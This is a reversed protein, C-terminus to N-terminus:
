NEDGLYGLARLQAETDPDLPRTSPPEVPAVVRLPKARARPGVPQGVPLVPHRAMELTLADLLYRRVAPDEEGEFTGNRHRILRRRGDTVGVRRRGEALLVFREDPAVARTRLSRAGEAGFGHVELDLADLVTPAVDIQSVPGRVRRGASTGPWHMVMPIRVLEEHLRLGGHGVSGHDFLEEGHDSLFIVLTDDWMDRAVLGDILEALAGDHYAVEADYAAILHDRDRQQLPIEGAAIRRLLLPDTFDVPGAYPRPDYRHLYPRPAAYPSHPDTSHVYAFLSQEPTETRSADIWAFLERVLGRARGRNMRPPAFHDWGREFGYTSSIYGNGVFAATKVGWEQLREGLLPENPRLVADHSFAGHQWPYLGTLVSAVSPKTWAATAHADLFVDATRALRDLAPTEVRTTPEYVRLRDARLTDALFVIAHRVPRRVPPARVSRVTAISVSASRRATAEIAALRSLPGEKAVRFPLEHTGIGLRHVDGDLTLEIPGGAVRVRLSAGESIRVRWEASWGAGLPVGDALPSPTPAGSASAWGCDGVLRLPVEPHEAHAFRLDVRRPGRDRAVIDRGGVSCRHKHSGLSLDGQEGLPLWLREDGLGYWDRTLRDDVARVPRGEHSLWVRDDLRTVEEPARGCGFVGCL